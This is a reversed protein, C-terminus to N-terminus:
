RASDNTNWLWITNDSITASAIFASNHSFAALKIDNEHGKLEQVCEGTDASWLRIIRDDSVSAILALNPSFTTITVKHSHGNSEQMYDGINIRWLRITKDM